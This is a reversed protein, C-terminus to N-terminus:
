QQRLGSPASPAPSSALLRPPSHGSAPSDRPPIRRRPQADLYKYSVACQKSGTISSRSPLDFRQHHATCHPRRIGSPYKQTSLSINAIPPFDIHVGNYM